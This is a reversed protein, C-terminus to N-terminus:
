RHGGVHVGVHPTVTRVTPLHTIPSTGPLTSRYSPLLSHPFGTSPLGTNGPLRLFLPRYTYGPLYMSYFGSQYPVALVSEYAGFPYPSGYLSSPATTGYLGAMGAGVPLGVIPFYTFDDAPLNLGALSAPDQIGASIANDAAISQARGEAWQGLADHADDSASKEPVLVGAFPLDDGQEVTVAPGAATYVQVQGERVEIRPPQSDIRYLGKESQHVTWDKFQVTVSTGAAPEASDLIASGSLLEVRTDSLATSAMRIASDHGVRLFVGPTLLVEARGEATRLEGGEPIVSFKGLSAQLPQGAVFVAGEFFHVLGSRTSIVAQGSAPLASVVVAAVFSLVYLPVRSVRSM